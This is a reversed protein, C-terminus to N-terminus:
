SACSPSRRSTRTAATRTPCGNAPSARITSTSCRPSPMSACATSTSLARALLARQRDPLEVVERRGFNYIATNWDPHFGQRPDAHEYLATGDFRALGHADVPFHAPVWDLIVGIGARHRPRRLARLRRSRRLPRRRSSASRSTAGPRMSRISPSRCSSSIPSAWTSSTPSSRTPSSTTPSGAIATARAALLGLHVEYISMPARRPDRTRARRWGRATAGRSARRTARRGLRDGAAAGRRLRRSRGEAAAARRRRRRDRVQLARRRRAGPVFIEWVGTDVRKRMAHRRGDWDNFDGVVSVRRANPAWVAFHVGHSAKTRRHRHAGLRDFLM